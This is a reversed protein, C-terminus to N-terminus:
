IGRWVNPIGAFEHHDTLPYGTYYWVGRKYPSQSEKLRMLNEDMYPDTFIPEQEGWPRKESKRKSTYNQSNRPFEASFRPLMLDTDDIWDRIAFDFSMLNNMNANSRNSLHALNKIMFNLGSM